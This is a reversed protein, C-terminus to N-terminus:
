LALAFSNARRVTTAFDSRCLRWYRFSASIYQASASPSSDSRAWGEFVFTLLFAVHGSVGYFKMSTQLLLPCTADLLNEGECGVRGWRSVRVVIIVFFVFLVLVLFPVILRWDDPFGFAVFLRCFGVAFASPSCRHCLFFQLPLVDICIIQRGCHLFRRHSPQPLPSM